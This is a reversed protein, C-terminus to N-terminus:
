PSEYAVHVERTTMGEKIKGEYLRHLVDILTPSYIFSARLESGNVDGPRLTEVNRVGVHYALGGAVCSSLLWNRKDSSTTLSREYEFIILTKLKGGDLSSFYHCGSEFRSRYRRSFDPNDAFFPTLLGKFFYRTEQDIDRDVLINVDEVRAVGDNDLVFTLGTASSVGRVIPVINWGDPFNGRSYFKLRVAGRVLHIQGHTFADDPNFVVSDFHGWSESLPSAECSSWVPLQLLLVFLFVLVSESIGSIEWSFRPARTRKTMFRDIVGLSSKSGRERLSLAKADIRREAMM